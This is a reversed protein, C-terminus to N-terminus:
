AERRNRNAGLGAVKAIARLERIRIAAKGHLPFHMVFAKSRLIDSTSGFGCNKLGSYKKYAVKGVFCVVKPNENKIVRSLRRRGHLEEGRRLESIDTTPRDIVNIFGLRYVANFREKYMKQLYSDDRLDERKGEAIWGQRAFVL